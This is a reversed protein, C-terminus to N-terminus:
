ETVEEIFPIKVLRKETSNIAKQLEKEQLYVWYLKISINFINLYQEKVETPLNKVMQLVNLKNKTNMYELVLASIQRKVDFYGLIDLIAYHSNLNILDKTRNENTYHKEIYRKNKDKLRNIIYKNRAEQDYVWRRGDWKHFRAGENPPPTEVTYDNKIHTPHLYLLTEKDYQYYM